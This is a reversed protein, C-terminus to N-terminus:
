GYYDNENCRNIIRSRELRSDMFWYKWGDHLYLYLRPTKYFYEKVGGVKIANYLQVYVGEIDPNRVIYFHPCRPMTHAFIWDLREVAKKLDEM